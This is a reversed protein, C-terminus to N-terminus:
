GMVGWTAVGKAATTHMHMIAKCTEVILALAQVVNGHRDSPQMVVDESSCATTDPNDMSTNTPM